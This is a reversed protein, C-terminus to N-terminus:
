RDFPCHGEARLDKFGAKAATLVYEGGDLGGFLFDGSADTTSRRISRTSTHVLTVSVEGVAAGSSDTMPGSISRTTIQAKSVGLGLTLFLIALLPSYRPM